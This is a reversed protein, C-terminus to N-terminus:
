KLHLLAEGKEWQVGVRKCLETILHPHPLGVIVIKLANLISRHIVLGVDVSKGM